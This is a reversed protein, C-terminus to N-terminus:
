KTEKWLDHTNRITALFGNLSQNFQAETTETKYNVDALYLRNDKPNVM